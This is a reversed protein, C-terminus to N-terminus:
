RLPVPIRQQQLKRVPLPYPRPRLHRPILALVTQHRTYVLCLSQARSQPTYLALGPCHSPLKSHIFLTIPTHRANVSFRPAVIPTPVILIPCNLRPHKRCLMSGSVSRAPGCWFSPQAQRQKIAGALSIPFSSLLLLIFALFLM